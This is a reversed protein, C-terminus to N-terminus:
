ALVTHLLQLLRETEALGRDRLLEGHKPHAVDHAGSLYAHADPVTEPIREQGVEQGHRTLDEVVMQDSRPVHQSVQPALGAPTMAM